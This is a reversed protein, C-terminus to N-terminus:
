WKYLVNRNDQNMNHKVYNLVSRNLEQVHADECALNTIFDEQPFLIDEVNVDIDYYNEKIYSELAVDYNEKAITSWKNAAFIGPIDVWDWTIIEVVDKVIYGGITAPPTTIARISFATNQHPNDLFSQLAQGHKGSPKIWGLLRVPKGAGPVNCPTNLPVVEIEPRIHHSTNELAIRLNRLYYQSQNMGPVMKPHEAEGNLYGGHLRKYFVTSPNNLIKNLDAVRYFENHLNFINFGGLNVKYYGNNDKELYGNGVSPKTVVNNLSIAASM